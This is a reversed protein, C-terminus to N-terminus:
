ERPITALWSKLALGALLVWLALRVQGSTLVYSFAALVAYCVLAWYLRQKPREEAM